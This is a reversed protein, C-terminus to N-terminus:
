RWLTDIFVCDNNVVYLRVKVKRYAASGKYLINDYADQMTPFSFLSALTNSQNHGSELWNLVNWSDIHRRLNPQVLFKMALSVSTASEATQSIKSPSYFQVKQKRKM